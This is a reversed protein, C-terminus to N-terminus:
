IIDIAKKGSLISAEITCPLNYQTWDGAILLNEPKKEFNRVLNINNPSQVYTAKKERVIQFSEFNIKKNLYSCIEEWVKNVLINSDMNNLSNADSVTISLHDNKVFLWQSISNVFGVIPKKFFAIYETKVKFHINLITNYEKPLNNGNLIKSLNTPPISILVKDNDKLYIKKNTFWLESVKNKSIVIKRLIDSYFIKGGKNIIHNIAPEILTNNWNEIPQLVKCYKPGRFLTKKLVNSLVKASAKSPDTNMVGITLPEWFTKFIKSQGVIKFVSSNQSVFFFKLFSLYDKLKTKPILNNKDFLLKYFSTSFNLNWKDKSDFDFFYLEPPLEKLSSTTGIIECFEKFNENASFVLHNGNDIDTKLKTDYFSRCRGGPFKASEHIEVKINKKSAHVAASLGSM